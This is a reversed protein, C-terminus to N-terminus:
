SAPGTKTKLQVKAKPDAVVNGCTTCRCGVCSGPCLADDGTECVEDYSRVGDGCTALDCADGIGDGDGDTQEPAAVDVCEDIHDPVTDGDTDSCEPM